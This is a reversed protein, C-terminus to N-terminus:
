KIPTILTIKRLQKNAPRELYSVVNVIFGSKDHKKIENYTIMDIAYFVDLGSIIKLYGQINMVVLSVIKDNTSLIEDKIKKSKVSLSKRSHPLGDWPLIFKKGMMRKIQILTYTNRVPKIKKEERISM